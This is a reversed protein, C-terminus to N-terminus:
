ACPLSELPWNGKVQRCLHEKNLPAHIDFCNPQTTNRSSTFDGRDVRADQGEDNVAVGPILVVEWGERGKEIKMKELMRLQELRM